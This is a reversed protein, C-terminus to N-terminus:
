NAPLNQPGYIRALKADRQSKVRGFVDSHISETIVTQSPKYHIPDNFKDKVLTHENEYDFDYVTSIKALERKYRRYDGDLEYENVKNQFDVFYPLIVFFLDIGNEDCYSKIKALDSFFPESFSYKGYWMEPVKKMQREWWEGKPLPPKQLKLKKMVPLERAMIKRSVNIVKQDFFYGVPDEIKQIAETVRNTKYTSSSLNFNVNMFVSKPKVFQIAYWFADRMEPISASAFSINAHDKGYSNAFMSNDIVLNMMSTGFVLNPKPDNIFKKLRWRVQDSPYAVNRKKHYNVYDKTLFYNYPDILFITGFFLVPILLVSFVVYGKVGVLARSEALALVAKSRSWLNALKDRM